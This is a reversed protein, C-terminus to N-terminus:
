ACCVDFRNLCRRGTREHLRRTVRQPVLRCSSLLHTCFRRCWRELPTSGTQRTSARTLAQRRRTPHFRMPKMSALGPPRHTRRVKNAMRMLGNPLDIPDGAVCNAGLTFKDYAQTVLAGELDILTDYWAKSLGHEEAGVVEGLEVRGPGGGKLTGVRVVSVEVAKADAARRVLNEGELVKLDGGGFLGGKARTAGMQSIMVVRKLEPAVGFATALAGQTLEGENAVIVMASCTEFVGQIDNGDSVVQACDPADIGGM